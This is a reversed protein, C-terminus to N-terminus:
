CLLIRAVAYMDDGASLAEGFHHRDDGDVIVICGTSLKKLQAFLISKGVGSFLAHRKKKKDSNALSVISSTM